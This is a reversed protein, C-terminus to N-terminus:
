DTMKPISLPRTDASFSSYSSLDIGSVALRLAFRDTISSYRCCYEGLKTPFKAAGFLNLWRSMCWFLLKVRLCACTLCDAILPLGILESSVIISSYIGIPVSAVIAYRFRSSASSRETQM